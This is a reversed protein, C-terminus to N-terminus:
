FAVIKFSGHQYITNDSINYM